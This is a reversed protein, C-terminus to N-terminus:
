EHHSIAATVANQFLDFDYKIERKETYKLASSFYVGVMDHDPDVWLNVGSGGPHSFSGQAQLSGEFYKWKTDGHVLWGYGYSAEAIWTGFFDVGIGSIQNRTMESVTPRSLIRTDGYIGNNLFMQGFIAMDMATSFVGGNGYPTDKMQRSNLGENFRSVRQALRSQSPLIVIRPDLSEPVIYHTDAM